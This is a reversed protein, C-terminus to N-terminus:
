STKFARGDVQISCYQPQERDKKSIVNKVRNIIGQQPKRKREQIEKFVSKRRIGFPEFDIAADFGEVLQDWGKQYSFVMHCIYLELGVTKAKERWCKITEKVNPLINPKYIVIIPKNNVKIYRPDKLIPLM